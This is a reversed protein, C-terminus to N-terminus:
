YNEDFLLCVWHAFTRGVVLCPRIQHLTELREANVRAAFEALVEEDVQVKQMRREFRESPVIDIEEEPPLHAFDDKCAEILAAKLLKRQSDTM